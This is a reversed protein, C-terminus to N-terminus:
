LTMCLCRYLVYYLDLNSYKNNYRMRVSHYSNILRGTLSSRRRWRMVQHLREMVQVIIVLSLYELIESCVCLVYSCVSYVLIHMSICHGPLVEILPKHSIKASPKKSLLSTIMGLNEFHYGAIKKPVYVTITGPSSLCLITCMLGGWLGKDIDHVARERGDEILDGPLCLRCCNYCRFLKHWDIVSCTGWSTHSATSSSPVVKLTSSERLYRHFYGNVLFTRILKCGIIGWRPTHFM